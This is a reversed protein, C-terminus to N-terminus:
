PKTVNVSSIRLPFSLKLHLAELIIKDNEISTIQKDQAFSFSQRQLFLKRKGKKMLIEMTNKKKMQRLLSVCYNQRFSYRNKNADTRVSYKKSTKKM